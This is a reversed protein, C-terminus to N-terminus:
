VMEGSRVTSHQDISTQVDIGPKAQGLSDHDKFRDVGGTLIETDTTGKDLNVLQVNSGGDAMLTFGEKPFEAKPGKTIQNDRSSARSSRSRNGFTLSLLQRVSSRIKETTM